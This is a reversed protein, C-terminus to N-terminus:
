RRAGFTTTYTAASSGVQVPADFAVAVGIERFDRNLINARHGPSDMWASMIQRPTSLSGGGWALNEGVLWWRAGRTYGTHALRDGVDRGRRSVHAFYRGRIMDFTHAHAARSLRRDRQLRDLGHEQRKHNLLCVTAQEFAARSAERPEADAYACRGGAAAAGPAALAVAACVITLVALPRHSLSM